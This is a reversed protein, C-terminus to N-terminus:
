LDSAGPPRAYRPLAADPHRASADGRGISESVRQDNRTQDRRVRVGLRRLWERCVLRDGHDHLRTEALEIGEGLLMRADGPHRVCRLRVLPRPAEGARQM